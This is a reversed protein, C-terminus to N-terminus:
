AQRLSLSTGRRTVRGATMVAGLAQCARIRRIDFRRQRVLLNSLDGARWLTSDLHDRCSEFRRCETHLVSARVLQAVRGGAITTPSLLLPLTSHIWDRREAHTTATDDCQSLIASEGGARDTRPPELTAVAAETQFLGKDASVELITFNKDTTKVLDPLLKTDSADKDRIEVATVVNTKVGCMIHVKVWHHHKRPVGYKQDYWRNFRSTTFGSSDCAFDIELCRLPLSSQVVLSNLIPTLEPNELYNFISNFHPVKSILGNAHAARLDSMFRRGSFTSYIKFCASFVADSLPLRPRGIKQVPEEINQCLEHLLKQFHEKESTQAANYAKWVQPYTKSVTLSETVTMSGDPNEERRLVYEVAYIHKCKCGRTEHDPCTCRPESPDPAVTYKGKGSQSPVLWISGKQTIRCTAAIVLGRQEREDM